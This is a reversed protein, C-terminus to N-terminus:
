LVSFNYNLEMDSSIKSTKCKNCVKRFAFNLNRCLPCIWDNKNNKRKHFKNINFKNSIKGKNEFIKEEEKVNKEPKYNKPKFEYGDKALSILSNIINNKSVNDDQNNNKESNMSNNEKEEINISGDLDKILENSLYNFEDLDNNFDSNEKINIENSQEDEEQNIDLNLFLKSNFLPKSQDNKDNKDFLEIINKNDEKKEELSLLSM